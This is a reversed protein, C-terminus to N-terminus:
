QPSGARRAVAISTPPVIAPSLTRGITGLGVIGVRMKMGEGCPELHAQNPALRALGDCRDADVPRGHYVSSVGSAVDDQGFPHRTCDQELDYGVEPMPLFILHNLGFIIRCSGQILM